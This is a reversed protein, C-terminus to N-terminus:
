LLMHLRDGWKKLMFILNIRILVLIEQTDREKQTVPWFTTIRCEKIEAM